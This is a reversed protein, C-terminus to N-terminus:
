AKSPYIRNRAGKETERERERERERAALPSCNEELV